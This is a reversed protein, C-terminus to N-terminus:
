TSLGGLITIPMRMIREFIQIIMRMIEGLNVMMMMMNAIEAGEDSRVASSFVWARVGKATWMDIAFKVFGSLPIGGGEM